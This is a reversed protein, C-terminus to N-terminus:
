FSFGFNSIICVRICKEISFVNPYKCLSTVCRYHFQCRSRRSPSFPLYVGTRHKRKMENSVSFLFLGCRATFFFLLSFYDFRLALSVLAIWKNSCQWKQKWVYDKTKYRLYNIDNNRRVAICLFSYWVRACVHHSGMRLRAKCWM